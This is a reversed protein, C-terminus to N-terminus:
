FYKFLSLFQLDLFLLMVQWRSGHGEPIHVFVNELRPADETNSSFTLPCLSLCVVVSLSVPFWYCLGNKCM